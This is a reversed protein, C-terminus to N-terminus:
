KNSQNLFLLQIIDTNGNLIHCFRFYPKNRKVEWKLNNFSFFIITVLFPKQHFSVYHFYQLHRTIMDVCREKSINKCNDM